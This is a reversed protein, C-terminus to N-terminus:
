FVFKQLWKMLTKFCVGLLSTKFLLMETHTEKQLVASLLLPAAFPKVNVRHLFSKKGNQVLVEVSKCPPSLGFCAPLRFRNVVKARICFYAILMFIRPRTVNIWYM